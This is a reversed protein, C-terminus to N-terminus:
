PPRRRDRGALRRVDGRLTAPQGGPRDAAAHRRGSGIRPPPWCARSTPGGIRMGLVAFEDVGLHDLLAPPDATYTSWGDTGHVRRGLLRCQAPGDRHRSLPRRPPRGPEVSGQGLGRHDVAARRARDAVGPLRLRARTTCPSAPASSLRCALVNPCGPRTRKVSRRCALIPTRLRGPGPRPSVDPSGPGCPTSRAAHHRGHGARGGAGGHLARRDRCRRWSCRQSAYNYLGTLAMGALVYILPDALVGSVTVGDTPHM